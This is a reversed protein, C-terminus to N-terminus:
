KTVYDTSNKEVGCNGGRQHETTKGDRTNEPRRLVHREDCLWDTLEKDDKPKEVVRNSFM